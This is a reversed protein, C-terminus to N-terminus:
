TTMRSPATVPEGAPRSAAKSQLRAWMWAALRLGPGLVCLIWFPAYLLAHHLGGTFPHRDFDLAFAYLVYNMGAVRVIWWGGPGFWRRVGGVSFAVLLGTWVVATGFVVFVQWGPAHGTLCLLGILGLHVSMVSAFALGLARGCRRLADFPGGLLSALAGGAYAPWFFVFALRATAVLGRGIGTEGTGSAALCAGALMASAAFASGVWVALRSAM